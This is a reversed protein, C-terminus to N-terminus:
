GVLPGDLAARLTAIETVAAGVYAGRLSRREDELDRRYPENELLGALGALAKETELEVLRAKLGATSAISTTFKTQM